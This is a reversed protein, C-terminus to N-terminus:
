EAAELEPLADDVADAVCREILDVADRGVISVATNRDCVCIGDVEIHLFECTKVAWGDRGGIDGSLDYETAVDFVATGSISGTRGELTYDEERHEFNPMM